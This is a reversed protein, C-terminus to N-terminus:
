QGLSEFFGSCYKNLKTSSFRRASADRKSFRGNRYHMIDISKHAGGAKLRLNSFENSVKPMKGSISAGNSFNVEASMPCTRGNFAAKLYVVGEGTGILDLNLSKGPFIKNSSESKGSNASLKIKTVNVEGTVPATSNCSQIYRVSTNADLSQNYSLTTHKGVTQGSVGITSNEGIYSRLQDNPISVYDEITGDSHITLWAKIDGLNKHAYNQAYWYVTVHDAENLVKVGYPSNASYLDAHLAAISNLPATSKNEYDMSGPSSKTYVLGNPSVIIRSIDEGYYNFRFNLDVPYFNYEDAQIAVASNEVATDPSFDIKAATYSCPPPPPTPAPLPSTANYLMNGVNLMRGTNTLGTLSPLSRGTMAVRQIADAVSLNPEAAFLLALAGSVHPTAMSTGSLVNYSNGPWTSLISVGPAAIDVTNAGYNSFSAMNGDRDVAAVSIVNPVDYGAPYSANADNDNSENGAAAAFAIGAASAAQIANYLAQSYGGGGWSNSAVRINVGRNKMTVMYNIAAVAGSLSGSGTASLFKLPMIKVNWNVGAVGRANNGVAGITGACHTGHGNDDMPDGNNAVANWGHIDDIYGNGDDDKGNGAVEGPNTWINPSLDQHNYDAGTDIVAVVVDSSGKSIDWARTASIGASDSMGWLNGFQTDDPVVDAIRIEFDPSCYKVIGAKVLDICFQDDPDLDTIEEKTGIDDKNSTILKFNRFKSGGLNKLIKLGRKTLVLDSSDMLADVDIVYRNKFVKHKKGDRAEAQSVPHNFISFLLAAVVALERCKRIRSFFM